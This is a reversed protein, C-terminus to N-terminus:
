PKSIIVFNEDWVSDDLIKKLEAEEKWTLDSQISEAGSNIFGFGKSPDYAALVVVHGSLINGEKVNYTMLAVKNTDRILEILQAPQLDKVEATPLNDQRNLIDGSLTNVILSQQYPMVAGGSPLWSFIPSWKQPSDSLFPLTVINSQSVLSAVDDGKINTEYLMNLATSIAYSACFNTAGQSQQYKLALDSSSLGLFSVPTTGASLKEVEEAYRQMDFKGEEIAKGWAMYSQAASDLPEDKKRKAEQAAAIAAAEMRDIKADAGNPM